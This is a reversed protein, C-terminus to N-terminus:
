ARERWPEARAPRTEGLPDRVTAQVPLTVTLRAGKGPLNDAAVTGGHEEVLKKVIALGLGTGKKKSTVYPEFLSTLVEAGIGPGNDEVTIEVFEREGGPVRRAGVNVAGDPMGELAEQANRILNHLLQRVRVADAEVKLGDEVDLTVAPQGDQARYLWAVERVLQGLDVPAISVAPSRAYESFANVMDRMAEVQQVITHTSRDLVQGDDADLAPLYRRRIREAALRIPTLPNKIEHALRRAVEGWAAERQAVLLETVDDFVVIAGGTRGAAATDDGPDGPLTSSACNLIRRSKGTRLEVQGRWDPHVGELHSRCAEIFERALPGTSAIEHLTAGARAAFDVGLIQGAADNAIRVRGDASTAIVGTSLRGLIAALSARERELQQQSTRSEERARALREIMGNFSDILFGVEDAAGPPLRTDFDGKAVAETGAALSEIPSALRRALYFAGAAASLLSLLLVLSLTAVLNDKLPGRLFRLEAYRTYTDQVADALRGQRYGVPFVAQLYRPAEAGAPLEVPIQVATRVQYRAGGQPELAVFRQTRQLEELADEALTPPLADLRSSSAVVREGAAFVTLEDANADARLVGLARSLAEGDLNGIAAALASTQSLRSTAQVELSERSLRLAASLEQELDSDFWSDIGGSVFQLAFFYVVFLPVLTLGVFLAVLRARLRAGPVRRRYDRVLRFLNVLIVALLVVAAVANVALILVHRRGFDAVSSAYDGLLVLAGIALLAAGGALVLTAYRRAPRPDRAIM